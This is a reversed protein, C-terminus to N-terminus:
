LVFCESEFVDHDMMVKNGFWGRRDVWGAMGVLVGIDRGIWDRM